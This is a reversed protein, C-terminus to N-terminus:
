RYEPMFHESWLELQEVLEAISSYLPKVEFHTVGADVFEAVRRKM